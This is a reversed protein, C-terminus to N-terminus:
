PQMEEDITTGLASLAATLERDLYILVSPPAAVLRPIGAHQGGRRDREARARRVEHLVCALTGRAQRISTPLARISSWYARDFAITRVDKPCDHAAACADDIDVGYAKALEEVDGTDLPVSGREVSELWRERVGRSYQAHPGDGLLCAVIQRITEGKKERAQRLLEGFREAM